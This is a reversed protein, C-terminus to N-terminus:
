AEAKPGDPAGGSPTGLLMSGRAYYKRLTDRSGLWFLVEILMFGGFSWLSLRSEALTRAVAVFPLAVATNAYFQYYRYHIENLRDYGSLKTHFQSFDWAPRRIGTAHHITDLLLWRVTSVTLGAAVSAITIYLFGGLTPATDTSTGLWSAVVPSFFSVGILVTFGPILYAILLGFNTETVDKM